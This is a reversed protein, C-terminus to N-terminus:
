WAVTVRAAAGGRHVVPAVSVRRRREYLTKKGGVLADVSVGIGAGIGGLMLVVISAPPGFSAGCFWNTPQCSRTNDEEAALGILGIGAAIAFGGLAGDWLPDRPRDIKVIAAYPIDTRAGDKLLTLGGDSIAAVRATITRGSEDTVRVRDGQTVLARRPDSAPQAAAAAPALLAVLVTGQLIGRM